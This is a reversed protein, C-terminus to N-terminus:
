ECEGEGAVEGHREKLQTPLCVRVLARVCVCVCRHSRYHFLQSVLRATQLSPLDNKLEGEAQRRRGGGTDRRWTQKCDDAASHCKVSSFCSLSVMAMQYVLTQLVCRRFVDFPLFHSCSPPLRSETSALSPLVSLGNIVGVYTSHSSLAPAVPCPCTCMRKLFFYFLYFRFLAFLFKSCISGLFYSVERNNSWLHRNNLPRGLCNFM